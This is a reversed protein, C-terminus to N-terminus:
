LDPEKYSNKGSVLDRATTQGLLHRLVVATRESGREWHSLFLIPSFFTYFKHTSIFSSILISLLFIHQAKVTSSLGVWLQMPIGDRRM